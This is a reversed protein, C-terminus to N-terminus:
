VGNVPIMPIASNMIFRSEFSFINHSFYVIINRPDYAGLFPMVAIFLIIFIVPLIMNKLIFSAFFCILIYFALVAFSFLIQIFLNNDYNLIDIVFRELNYRELVFERLFFSCIFVMIMAILMTLAMIFILSIIKSIVIEWQSNTISFLKHTKFRYDFSGVYAAYIGFIIACIIFTMYELFGSIVNRPATNQLAIALQVFDFHL